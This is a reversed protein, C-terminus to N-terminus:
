MASFREEAFLRLAFRGAVTDRLRVVEERLQSPAEELTPHVARCQAPLVMPAALAAFTLDAATFREGVLFRRGQTLRDEVEQFVTERWERTLHSLERAGSTACDAGDAEPVEGRARTGTTDM